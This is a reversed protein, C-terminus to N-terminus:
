PVMRAQLSSRRNSCSWATNWIPKKKPFHPARSARPPQQHRHMMLADSAHSTITRSKANSLASGPWDEIHTEWDWDDAQYLYYNVGHPPHHAAHVTKRLERLMM